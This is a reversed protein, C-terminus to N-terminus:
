GAPVPQFLETHTVSRGDRSRPFLGDLDALVEIKQHQKGACGAEGAVDPQCRSHFAALGLSFIQKTPGTRVVKGSRDRSRLAPLRSRPADRTQNRSQQIRLAALRQIFDKAHRIASRVALDHMIGITRGDGIQVSARRQPRRCAHCRDVGNYRATEAGDTHTAKCWGHSDPATYRRGTAASTSRVDPALTRGIRTEGLHLLRMASQGHTFSNKKVVIGEVGSPMCWRPKRFASAASSSMTRCM